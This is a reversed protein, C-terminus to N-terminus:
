ISLNLVNIIYCKATTMEHRSARQLMTSLFIRFANMNFCPLIVVRVPVTRTNMYVWFHHAHCVNPLTLPRGPGGQFIGIIHKVINM